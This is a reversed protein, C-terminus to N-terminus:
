RYDINVSVCVVKQYEIAFRCFEFFDKWYVFIKSAEAVALGINQYM